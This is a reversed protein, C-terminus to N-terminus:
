RTEEQAPTSRLTTMMTLAKDRCGCMDEDGHDCEFLITVIENYTRCRARLEEREREWALVHAPACAAIFDRWCESQASYSEWKTETFKQALASATSLPTM